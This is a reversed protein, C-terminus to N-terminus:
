SSLPYMSPQNLPSSARARHGSHAPIGSLESQTTAPATPMKGTTCAVILLVPSTFLFLRKTM